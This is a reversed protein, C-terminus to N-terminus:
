MVFNDDYEEDDNDDVQLLEGYRVGNQYFLSMKHHDFVAFLASTEQV